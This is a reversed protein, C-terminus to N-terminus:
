KKRILAYFTLLFPFVYYNELVSLVSPEQQYQRRRTSHGIGPTYYRQRGIMGVPWGDFSVYQFVGIM